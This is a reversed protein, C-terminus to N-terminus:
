ATPITVTGIDTGSPAVAAAGPMSSGVWKALAGGGAVGSTDNAYLWANSGNQTQQTLWVKRDTIKTVYYTNGNADTAIINMQGAAPAAAVLACVSTGQATTVKYRHSGAQKVIDATVASSGGVVYATPIIAPWVEAGEVSGFTDTTLIATAAAGTSGSFSVAADAANIYGSGPETVAISLLGMTITATAGTGTAPSVSDLQGSTSPFVTYDGAVSVTGFSYVGWNASTFGLVLGNGNNDIPGDHTTATFGGVGGAMSTPPAGTGVWVGQQLVTIATATSGSVATIEVILPTSLNAHTFTVQDGVAGSVDYLSGGNTITPTGVSVVAAVPARAKTTATGTHVELIDGVAYGTGNATTAFSLAKYHATGAVNVGNPLTPTDFTVTPQATWGSGATISNYSEVGQGGIRNDTSTSASGLNRQGFWKKNLPRGM